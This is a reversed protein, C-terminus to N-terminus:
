APPKRLFVFLNGSLWLPAVRHLFSLSRYALRSGFYYSPDTRFIFSRDHWDPFFGSVARLTNMKYATPFVDRSKRGPQVRALHRSHSDNATMRAALSVYHYTHPTRACFYGGPKLVRGVEAAFTGPDALHELVYDAVVTDAYDDDLPIRAGDFVMNRTCARNEEVAPDVDLAILEGVAPALHRIERRMRVTDDEFWEARGAGYDIVVSQPTTLDRVRLYFDITGDNQSFRGVTNEYPNFM